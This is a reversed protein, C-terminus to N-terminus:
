PLARLAEREIALGAHYRAFYADFGEKDRPDPMVPEGGGEGLVEDLFDQLSQGKTKRDMFAALLAMGWSGGEGASGPLGVPVGTAAALIRQGVEPTRFIGGHGQLKEIKVGEEATLIDLGTRLACFSSFVLSRLLNALTFNGEPNRVLLPRGETFGTIHEGSVYGISLLGGAEADSKLILPLLTGYLEDRSPTIGLTDCVQGFLGMWADLDSSGNNAHAMAVPKGDPTTVMDIEEHVRRLNHELVVMAFVSTGVSVNGTRPRISNTAVMGTGADGEPPCFRLGARWGGSPDLLGAGEETLAGAAEGATKVAPLIDRLRWPFNRAAVHRDYAEIMAQDYDRTDPDIPFMGSADGIGIVKEGTLRWHVYGALTTIFSINKVHGEGNLVAQHLHAISWRQPVAFDFLGTLEEAAQGTTNNRWTRFPVLLNGGEDFALYGHMMASIGGAALRDLVAGYGTKVRDKLDALCAAAGAWVEDLGYTWYGGSLTNEWGFTGSTLPEGAPSILTAKIRTSGFECGLFCHGSEIMEKLDKVKGEADM